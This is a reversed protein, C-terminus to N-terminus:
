KSPFRRPSPTSSAWIRYPTKLNPDILDVYYFSENPVVLPNPQNITAPPTIQSLPLDQTYTPSLSFPPNGRTNGLLNGYVRDHFIGYGARISTRGNKLPDWALGLSPEFNDYQNNYLTHSTGPGTM